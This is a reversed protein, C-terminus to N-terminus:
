ALSKRSIMGEKWQLDLFEALLPHKVLRLNSVQVRAGHGDHPLHATSYTQRIQDKIISSQHNDRPKNQSSIKEERKDHENKNDNARRTKGQRAKGQRIDMLGVTDIM